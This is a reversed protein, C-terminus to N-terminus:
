LYQGTDGDSVEQKKKPGSGSIPMNEPTPMVEIPIFPAGRSQDTIFVSMAKLYDRLQEEEIGLSLALRKQAEAAKRADRRTLLKSFGIRLWDTSIMAVLIGSAIASSLEWFNM